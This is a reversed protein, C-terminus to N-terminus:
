HAPVAATRILPRCRQASRKELLSDLSIPGAGCLILVAAMYGWLVHQALAAEFGESGLVHWYSIVAMANVAFLGLAGLRSFLGLVLLTPFVLEGSAGVVAALYPPLVPVHYESRFLELTVDWSTVKLWGSKWFQWSVYLRTGLLPLPRLHDLGRGIAAHLNVFDLLKNM